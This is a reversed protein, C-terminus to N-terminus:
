LGQDFGRTETGNPMVMLEYRKIEVLDEKIRIFRAVARQQSSWRGERM